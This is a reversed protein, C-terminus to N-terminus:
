RINECEEYVLRSPQSPKEIFAMIVLFDHLMLMFIAVHINCKSIIRYFAYIADVAIGYSRVLELAILWTHRCPSDLFYQLRCSSFCVPAPLSVTVEM